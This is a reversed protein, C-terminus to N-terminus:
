TAGPEPFWTQDAGAYRLARLYRSSGMKPCALVARVFADPPRYRHTEVYHLVLRPAVYICHEGPVFVEGSGHPAASECLDCTHGGLFDMFGWPSQLLGTLRERFRQGTPGVAFPKGRELYGVALLASTDWRNAGDFERCHALDGYWAM